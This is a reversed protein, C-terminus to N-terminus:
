FEGIGWPYDIFTILVVLCGVHAQALVNIITASIADDAVEIRDANPWSDM